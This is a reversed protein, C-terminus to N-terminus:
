MAKRMMCYRSFYLGTTMSKWLIGASSLNLETWCPMSRRMFAPTSHSGRAYLTVHHSGKRIVTRAVDMASNGVGIVAVRDGLDYADPNALYDIAFHVNGLSEGKIGLKKPRWVGTGIFISEYGDRFLDKIELAGGITTNPRIRIGWPCFSKRIASWYRRPCVSNRYATSCYAAM